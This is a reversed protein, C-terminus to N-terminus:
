ARYTRRERSAGGPFAEWDPCAAAALLEALRDHSQTLGSEMGSALM